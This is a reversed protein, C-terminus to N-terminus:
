QAGAKDVVGLTGEEKVQVEGGEELLGGGGGDDEAAENAANQAREGGLAEARLASEEGGGDEPYEAASEAGKHVGGGQENAAEGDSEGNAEATSNHRDQEALERMVRVSAHDRGQALELDGDADEEGTEEGVGEDLVNGM